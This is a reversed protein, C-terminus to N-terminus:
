PNTMLVPVPEAGGAVGAAEGSTGRRWRSWWLAPRVPKGLYSPAFVAGQGCRELLPVIFTGPPHTPSVAEGAGGTV